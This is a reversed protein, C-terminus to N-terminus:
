CWGRMETRRRKGGKIRKEKEVLVPLGCRDEWVREEGQREANGISSSLDTFDGEKRRSEALLYKKKTM